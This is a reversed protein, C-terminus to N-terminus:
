AKVVVFAGDGGLPDQDDDPDSRQLRFDAKVGSDRVVQFGSSEGREWYHPDERYDGGDVDEFRQDVLAELEDATMDAPVEIVESYEVRTMAALNIRVLKTKIAEM